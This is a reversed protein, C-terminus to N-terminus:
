VGAAAPGARLGAGRAGREAAQAADGQAALAQGELQVLGFTGIVRHDVVGRTLGGQRHCCADGTAQIQRHVARLALQELRGAVQRHVGKAKHAQGAVQIQGLARAADLESVQGTGGAHVFRDGRHHHVLQEYAAITQRGKRADVAAACVRCAQVQRAHVERQRDLGLFGRGRVGSGALPRGDFGAGGAGVKHAHAAQGHRGARDIDRDGAFRSVVGQDVVGRLAQRHM